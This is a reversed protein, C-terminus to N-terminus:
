PTEAPTWGCTRGQNEAKLWTHLPAFYALMPGADMQRSGTIAELADPWPKSAGMALMASLKAGAEKSGYVSCTHLPGQHGAAECLAAHFQFQLVAALFYRLYPTNGPIHYKAGPDFADAPRDTPAGVGQYLARLAWWHKNWENQPVKGAFVDWRWQDIMRGFPLFAIKSLADHMQKNLVAEETDSVTEILGLRNLYAPTISLVLADGIAEHFGDHAGAQFLVPQHTYYHNYYNHGLEHHITVLDDFTGEICMKIRQDDNFEVDWASAHCVVDRGEPKTFMSREWFTAPMPDLGMSKFFAEGTQVVKIAPWDQEEMAKAVDLDAAGPHPELMPYMGEWSQAWMNGTVHAPILGTAPVKEPGYADTLKARTYCHLQEYMPRLQQWLRETEAEAEAPTMDYGARWLEGLDAFGIGKAGENGLAAFEQYLPAIDRTAKRWDGWAALQADWDKTRAGDALAKSLVELDRCTEPKAPDACYKGAGYMGTMKAAVTALRARKEADPPAPLVTARRLLELQRREEDTLGEAALHEHAKPINDTMWAMLTEDAAVVKAENEDTINTEYVWMASQQAIWLQRLEADAQKVFAKAAATKAAKEQSDAAANGAPPSSKPASADGCSVLAFLGLGVMWRVDQVRCQM